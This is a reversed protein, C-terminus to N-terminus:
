IMSVFMELDWFFNERQISVMNFADYENSKIYQRLEDTPLSLEYRYYQKDAEIELVGQHTLSVRTSADIRKYFWYKEEIIELRSKENINLAFSVNGAYATFLIKENCEVAGGFWYTDLNKYPQPLEIEEWKNNGDWIVVPMCKRPALYFKNNCFTIGSYRNDAGGVAFYEVDYTDLNFKMVENKLCSALYIVNDKKVYDTRFFADQLKEADKLYREYPETIYNIDRTQLSLEIIAPYVSGIFYLKENYYVGQLMSGLKTWSTWNIFERREISDWKETELNYIWINKATIPAFILEDGHHIIKSGLRKANMAEGPIHSVIETEGTYICLKFVVNIDAAIFYLYDGVRVCDEASMIKRKTSNMFIEEMVPKVCLELGKYKKIIHLATKKKIKM